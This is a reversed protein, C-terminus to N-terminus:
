FYVNEFGRATNETQEKIMENINCQPGTNKRNCAFLLLQRSETLPFKLRTFLIMCLYVILYYQDIM